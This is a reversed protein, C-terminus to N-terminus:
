YITSVLLRLGDPKSRLRVPERNPGHCLLLISERNSLKPARELTLVLQGALAGPESALVLYSEDAIVLHPSSIM